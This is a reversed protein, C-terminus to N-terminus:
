PCVGGCPYPLQRFADVASAIDNFDVVAEPLCSNSDAGVLDVNYLTITDFVGRFGDVVLSIDVFDVPGDSNNVDGRKWTTGGAATSLGIGQGTDCEAQVLYSTSPIIELGRVHATGWGDLGRPAKYVPVPGLTGNSQVYFSVCLVDQSVGTVLLAVPTEGVRPTVALYRPGEAAVVPERCGCSDNDENCLAPDDCPTEGPQCGLMTHCFEPGNCFVGDDCVTDDPVYVCDGDDCQDETCGVGDGPCDAVTFCDVCRDGPEDCLQGPCADGSGVCTGDSCQDTATCFLGDDCPIVNNVNSCEGFTCRDTTCINGDDCGEDDLCDVCRNLYEDCLQPPVCPDPGGVCATDSCTDNSTCFQGDECSATNPIHECVNDVCSDDTCVNGDDCDDVTLCEVCQDNAEDCVDNPEDPCPDGTGVCAGDSCTDTATCFLGDDCPLTNNPNECAGVANCIDDTCVNQDDCDAVELCEVCADLTESCLLPVSCPDGSGVCAGGSCTDTATCFSGDNCPLTNNTYECVGANCDDDTCGNGDDCDEDFDCEIIRITATGLTGTIVVGQTSGAGLVRTQTYLGATLPMVIQSGLTGDLARFEFTTVEMGAPPVAAGEQFGGLAQYLADGDNYPLGTYPDCFLGEGCDANLGDLGSDNPFASLFWGFPGHDTHGMLEFISPDWNLIVEIAGTPQDICTGSLAKLTVEIIDGTRVTQMVPAWDLNVTPPDVLTGSCTGDTCIDNETCPFGDDCPDGENATQAQCTGNVPNCVGVNCDDDLFSCDVPTGACSGASCVDNITCRDSDDCDTGDTVPTLTDCNGEAGAPDCSATNCQDGSGSCDPPSGGTCVGGQCTEGVNCTDNDDCSTGDTVPTLTDCNGESGAPDCSAVNCQDGAGSCDPPSGGTCVGAQCTEGLDCANGDDCTTGDTIPTLTDCNGEAGAPDCSATNCQDGAGSCDPASGGTCAGSQCTEGINCADTDDCVTGDTVPTLIDCNGEVGASDCSATNCQDGAGSCDPPSGSQCVGGLCMDGVTCADGDDCPGTVITYECVGANCVEDTCTNDDDCDGDVICADATVTITGDIIVTALDEWYSAGASTTLTVDWVGDANGSATVPFGALDASFDLMGPIFSGNDDVDGNLMLSGTLDTDYPTFTGVVPWPDDIQYVDVPPAATFTLTGFTGARPVLEVLITVGFTSQNEVNGWVVVDTTAAPPMAFSSVMLGVAPAVTITGAALTTTVDEWNSDGSATSLMVDWVGGADASAVVPLGALQGSFTVPGPIFTGNDDATGNLLSSGTLDTDYTSFTGIGPWPDDIQYIDTPPAATFTVTGTNGVRPIIEVYLNVGYTDYGAVEGSVLLDAGTGYSMELSGVSLTATMNLCVDNEEDCTQGPCPDGSGVCVGDSCVDTLTCFLEDECPVTNNTYECVGGDCVDDTCVNGDDCDANTSCPVCQDDVEDCAQGPCPYSGAVCSGGVCTEAGNCFEGDDCDEDGLCDVCADAVEDCMQGPCPDSGAYCSGGVCTEAGNCFTGDSCDEDQLCDVCADAVEDCMQGPCPDSGAVCTWDVCTEAGNCFLGDDCDENFECEAPTVTITGDILTTSLGEWDSDDSFTSLTVDWVGEANASATVPFSTLPGSFTVPGPEYTGNEDVSGNLSNWGTYDTDYPTFTGAGPWPDGLQVVDIPPALTFTVTGVNGGRPVIEVLINVGFTSEGAIDGSVVVNETTDSIMNVSGVSLEAAEVDAAGLLVVACVTTLLRCLMM